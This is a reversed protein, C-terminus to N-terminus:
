EGIAIIRVRFRATTGDENTIYVLPNHPDSVDVDDVVFESVPDLDGDLNTAFVEYPDSRVLMDRIAIGLDKTTAHWAIRDTM